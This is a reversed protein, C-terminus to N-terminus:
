NELKDAVPRAFPLTTLFGMVLRFCCEKLAKVAM